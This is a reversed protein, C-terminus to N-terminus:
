TSIIALGLAAAVALWASSSETGSSPSPDSTFNAYPPFELKAISKNLEALTTPQWLPRDYVITRGGNVWKDSIVRPMSSGRGGASNGGDSSGGGKRNKLFDTLVNAGKKINDKNRDVFQGVKGERVKAVLAKIAAWAKKIWALLKVFFGKIALWVKAFFGASATASAATAAAGLGAEFDAMQLEAGDYVPLELGSLGQLGATKSAGQNIDDILSKEKGGLARVYVKHLEQYTRRADNYGREDVGTALADQRSLTGILSATAIGGKGNRSNNFVPALNWDNRIALRFAGRALLSIPNWRKIFDIISQFFKGVKNWFKDDWKPGVYDTGWASIKLYRYTQPLFNYSVRELEQVDRSSIEGLLFRLRQAEYFRWMINWYATNYWDDRDAEDSHARGRYSLSVKSSDPQKFTLACWPHADLIARVGEKVKARWASASKGGALYANHASTSLSMYQEMASTYDGLSISGHRYSFKHQTTKALREQMATREALNRPARPHKKNMDAHFRSIGLKRSRSSGNLGDLVTEGPLEHYTDNAETVQVLRAWKLSEEEEAKFQEITDNIGNLEYLPLGALQGMTQGDLGNLAYLSLGNLGSTGGVYRDYTSSMAAAEEDFNHLCPDLVWYDERRSPQAQSHKPIILYIHRYGDQEKRKLKIKRFYHAIGLCRLIQSGNTSFCDCDIGEHRVQWSQSLTRVQEKGPADEKYQFYDHQWQFVAKLTAELSGKDLVKAIEKAQDKYRESNRVMLRLTDFTDADDNVLRVDGKPKPILSDYPSGDAVVQRRHVSDAFGLSLSDNLLSDFLYFAAM